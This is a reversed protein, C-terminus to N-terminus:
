VVWHFLPRRLCRSGRGTFLRIGPQLITLGGVIPLTRPDLILVSGPSQGLLARRHAPVLLAMNFADGELHSMLQLAATVDDWGNSIVIAEFVQRYQDWSTTGAFMPVSTSTFGAWGSHQPPVSTTGPCDEVEKQLCAVVDALGVRRWTALRRSPGAAVLILCPGSVRRVRQTGGFMVDMRIDSDTTM